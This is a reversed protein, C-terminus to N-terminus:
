AAPRQANDCPFQTVASPHQHASIEARSKIGTCVIIRNTRSPNLADDLPTKITSGSAAGAPPLHVSRGCGPPAPAGGPPWWPSGALLQSVAATSAPGLSQRLPRRFRHCVRHLRRCAQSSPGRLARGPAPLLVDAIARRSAGANELPFAACFSCQNRWKARWRGRLKRPVFPLCAEGPGRCLVRAIVSAKARAPCAPRASATQFNFRHHPCVPLVNREDGDRRRPSLSWRPDLVKGMSSSARKRPCTHLLQLPSAPPLSGACQLAYAFLSLARVTFTAFCVSM